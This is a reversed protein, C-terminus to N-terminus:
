KALDKQVQLARVEWTHELKIKRINAEKEILLSTKKTLELFLERLNEEEYDISWGIENEKVFKGALTDNSAIIPKAKGIYEFLKVPAAFDWYPQPKVFLMAIDAEDYLEILEDGNKHVISINKSVIYESKIDQWEKERTCLTFHFKPFDKLVNFLKHMQYHTGLGGIYLLNIIDSINKTRNTDYEDHGPPLAKFKTQKIIPIYKAMQLSPLYVKDLLLNYQFLDYIYFLKAISRKFFSLEKAYQPFLWYIDRYFLGIKIGQEKCFKFFGFDVFPYTPLHKKQTLLTPLTSSESYVFDFKEGALIEKKISNIKDKREKAYGTVERVEYGIKKFAKIMELPRIGSASKANKDLPLPHHFIIKKM